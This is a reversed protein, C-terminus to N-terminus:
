ILKGNFGRNLEPIEWGAVNSQQLTFTALHRSRFANVDQLLSQEQRGNCEVMNGLKPKILPFSIPCQDFM